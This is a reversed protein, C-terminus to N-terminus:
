LIFKKSTNINPVCNECRNIFLFINHSNIFSKDLRSSTNDIMTQEMISWKEDFQALEKSLVPRLRAIRILVEVFQTFDIDTDNYIMTYHNNHSAVHSQKSQHEQQHHLDITHICIYHILAKM